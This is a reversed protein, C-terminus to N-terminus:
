NDCIHYSDNISHIYFNHDIYNIISISCNQIPFGYFFRKVQPIDLIGCLISRITGGHSVIAIRDNKEEKMLNLMVSCRNWVDQGNEGGPYPVDEKHTIWKDYIDPYESWSKKYLLGMNIERFAETKILDAKIKSTLIEATQIARALDSCYIKDFPLNALRASLAKAQQIGHDTLPPDMTKKDENYYDMRSDYCQGHRILYIEM